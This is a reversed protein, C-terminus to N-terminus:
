AEELDRRRKSLSTIIQSRNRNEFEHGALQTLVSDFKGLKIEAILETNDKADWGDPPSFSPSPTRSLGPAGASTAMGGQTRPGAQTTARPDEAFYISRDWELNKQVLPLWQLYCKGIGDKFKLRAGRRIVTYNGSLRDREEEDPEFLITRGTVSSRLTVYEGKADEHVPIGEPVGERLDDTM